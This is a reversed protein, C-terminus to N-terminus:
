SLQLLTVAKALLSATNIKEKVVNKVLKELTKFPFPALTIPRYSKCEDYRAKGPKPIFIVKNDRWTKPTYGNIMTCKFIRTLAEITVTPLKKLAIPPINDPGPAKYSGFSEIAEIVLKPKVYYLSSYDTSWNTPTAMSELLNTKECDPFHTEMLLELTAEPTTTYSGDEKRLFSIEESRKRNVIKMLRSCDSISDVDTSFERWSEEKKKEIMESYENRVIRYDNWCSNKSAKRYARNVIQRLETLEECWWPVLKRGNRPLFPSVEAMTEYILEILEMTFKDAAIPSELNNSDIIHQTRSNLLNTFMKWNSKSINIREEEEKIDSTITYRIYRHDSGTANPDVYWEDIFEVMERNVLTLDIM